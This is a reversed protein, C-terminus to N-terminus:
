KEQKKSGYNKSRGGKREKAKDSLNGKEKFAAYVSAKPNAKKAFLLRKAQTAFRVRSVIEAAKEGEKLKSRCKAVRRERLM